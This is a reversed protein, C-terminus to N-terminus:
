DPMIFGSKLISEIEDLEDRTAYINGDNNVINELHVSDVETYGKLTGITVVEGCPLGYQHVYKNYDSITKISTKPSVIVMHIERNSNASASWTGVGGNSFNNPYFGEINPVDHASFQTSRTETTETHAGYNTDVKEVVRMRGSPGRKQKTKNVTKAGVNKVSSVIRSSGKTAVLAVVDAVFNIGRMINNRAVEVGNGRGIPITNSVESSVSTFISKNNQPTAFEKSIYVTMIGSIVDLTSYVYMGNYIYQADLDIYGFYPIYIQAKTYSGVNYFSIYNNETGDVINKPRINFSGLYIPENDTIILKVDDISSFTIDINGIRMYSVTSSGGDDSDIKESVKVNRCYENLSFPYQRISILYQSPDEGFLVGIGAYQEPDQIVDIVKLLTQYNKIIYTRVMNTKYTNKEFAGQLEPNASVNIPDVDSVVTVAYNYELTSSHMNPFTFADVTNASYSDYDYDVVSLCPLKGDSLQRNFRSESRRIYADQSTISGSYTHLVDEVMDLQWVGNRVSTIGVIFYYRGFDPIEAYNFKPFPEYYITISTNMVDTEEKLTGEVSTGVGSFRKVLRNNEDGTNNLIIRM